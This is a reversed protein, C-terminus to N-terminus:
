LADFKLQGHFWICSGRKLWIMMALASLVDKLYTFLEDQCCCWSKSHSIICFVVNMGTSITNVLASHGNRLLATRPRRWWTHISHGLLNILNKEIDYWDVPSDQNSKWAIKMECWIMHTTYYVFQEMWHVILVSIQSDSISM